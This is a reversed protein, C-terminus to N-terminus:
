RGAGRQVLDVLFQLSEQRLDEPAAHAIPDRFVLGQAVLPVMRRLVAERMLARRLEVMSGLRTTVLAGSVHAARAIAGRSVTRYGQRLAETLAIELLEAARSAPLLRRLTSNDRAAPTTTNM